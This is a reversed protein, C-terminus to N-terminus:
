GGFGFGGGGGGGGFMQLLKMIDLKGNFMGGAKGGQIEAEQSQPAPQRSASAARYEDDSAPVERDAVQQQRWKALDGRDFIRRNPDNLQRQYDAGYSDGASGMAAQDGGTSGGGIEEEDLGLLARMKDYQSPMM